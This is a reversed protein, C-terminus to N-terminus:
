KVKHKYFKSKDIVSISETFTGEEIKELTEGLVTFKSDITDVYWVLLAEATLPRKAAGFNPIGHHSLLIHNLVLVEEKKEYGLEKALMMVEQSIMILHGILQGEKTYEGGEFGSLEDVKCLDHLIIGSYVLDRNIFPYVNLLGEAIDLMTKTHYALGGIYAHHFRVAAPYTYFGKEYKKYLKKTIEKLIPNKIKNLYTEIDKKVEKTSLPSFEYYDSLKEKLLIPDEIYNFLEFFSVVHNQLKDNVIIEEYNFVYVREQKLEKLQEKTLKLNMKENDKTVINCNSFDDGINFSEIKGEIKLM